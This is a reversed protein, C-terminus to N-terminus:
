CLGSPRSNPCAWFQPPTLCAKKKSILGRALTSFFRVVIRVSLLVWNLIHVLGIDSYSVIWHKSYVNFSLLEEQAHTTYIKLRWVRSAIFANKLKFIGKHKKTFNNTKINYCLSSQQVWLIKVIKNIIDTKNVCQQLYLLIQRPQWVLSLNLAIFGPEIGTGLWSYSLQQGNTQHTKDNSKAM